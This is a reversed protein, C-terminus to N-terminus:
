LVKALAYGILFTIAGIAALADHGTAILEAILSIAVAPPAYRIVPRTSM